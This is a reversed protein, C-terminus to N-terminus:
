PVNQLHLLATYKASPFQVKVLDRPQRFRYQRSIATLGLLLYPRSSQRM